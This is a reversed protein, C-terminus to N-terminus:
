LALADCIIWGERDSPTLVLCWDKTENKKLLIVKSDSSIRGMSAGDVPKERVHVRDKTVQVERGAKRKEAMAKSRRAPDFFEVTFFLRYRDFRHDIGHIPLGALKERVCNGTPTAGAITSSPGSWFSITGATFDLNAGLSLVGTGGDSHTKRCEDVVWLRTAMRKELVDMRDCEKSESGAAWCRFYLPAGDMRIGEPTPGPPVEPLANGADVTEENDPTAGTAPMPADSSAASPETPTSVPGTTGDRPEAACNEQKQPPIRNQLAFHVLAFGAAFSLAALAIIILSESIKRPEKKGSDCSLDTDTHENTM